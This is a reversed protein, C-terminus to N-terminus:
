GGTRRNVLVVCDQGGTSDVCDVATASGGEGVGPEPTTRRVELSVPVVGASSVVGDRSM